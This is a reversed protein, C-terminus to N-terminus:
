HFSFLFLAGSLLGRSFGTGSHFRFPLFFYLDRGLSPLLGVKGLFARLNATIKNLDTHPIADFVFHSGFATAQAIVPPLGLGIATGVAAHVTLFM